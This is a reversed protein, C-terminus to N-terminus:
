KKLSEQWANIELGFTKKIKSKDMVSYKPRKAPTPFATTPIAKLDINVNNVRFIEKAFDHWSTQGSNSFHYIGYANKGSLIIAIIAEALDVANTPTGIQDNVVSISDREKSLRLM